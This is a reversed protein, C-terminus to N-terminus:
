SPAHMPWCRWPMVASVASTACALVAAAPFGVYPVFRLLGVLVALVARVTAHAVQLATLLAWVVLGVGFNVSFQSVFYRSLRQGADNFASTAARVDRGGTLRILRDRLSTQEVLAFVLALVVVGVEGLPGWVTGLLTGLATPENEQVHGADVIAHFASPRDTTADPALLPASASAGNDFLRGARNQAERMRDVTLGRLTTIKDRVNSEYRPLDHTMSGLRAVIVLAVDASMVGVLGLASVAAAPQGLGLRRVQRVIPTMVFALMVALTIPEFVGRGLYLLSLVALDALIKLVVHVPGIPQSM